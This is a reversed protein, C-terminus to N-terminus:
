VSHKRVVWHLETLTNRPLYSGLSLWQIPLFVVRGKFAWDQTTNIQTNSRERQLASVNKHTNFTATKTYQEVSCWEIIFSWTRLSKMYKKRKWKGLPPFNLLYIWLSLLTNYRKSTLLCFNHNCKAKEGFCPTHGKVDLLHTSYMEEDFREGGCCCVLRLSHITNGM